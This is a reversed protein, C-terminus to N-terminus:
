VNMRESCLSLEQGNERGLAEYYELMKESLREWEFAM